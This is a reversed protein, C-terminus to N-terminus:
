RSNRKSTKLSRRTVIFKRKFRLKSMPGRGATQLGLPGLDAEGKHQSRVRAMPGGQDRNSARMWDAASSCQHGRLDDFSNM